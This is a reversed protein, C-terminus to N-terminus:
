TGDSRKLRSLARAAVFVLVDHSIGATLVNFAEAEKRALRNRMFERVEDTTLDQLSALTENFTM